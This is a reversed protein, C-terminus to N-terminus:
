GSRQRKRAGLVRRAGAAHAVPQPDRAQDQGLPPDGSRLHKWSTSTSPRPRISRRARAQPGPQPERRPCPWSAGARPPPPRWRPRARACAAASRGRRRARPPGPAARGPRSRRRRRAGGARGAAPPPAARSRRRAARRRALRRRRGPGTRSSPGRRCRTATERRGRRQRQVPQALPELVAARRHADADDVRAAAAAPGAGLAKGLRLGEGDLLREVQGALARHEDGRAGAQLVRVLRDGQAAREESVVPVGRQAAGGVAVGVVAHGQGLRELVRARQGDAVGRQVGVVRLVRAEAEVQAAAAIRQQGLQARAARHDIQVCLRPGSCIM